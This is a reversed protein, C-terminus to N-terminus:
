EGGFTIAHGMQRYEKGPFARFMELIFGKKFSSEAVRKAYELDHKPAKWEGAFETKLIRRGDTIFFYVRWSKM